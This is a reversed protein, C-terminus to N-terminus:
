YYKRLFGFVYLSYLSIVNFPTFIISSWAQREIVNFCIKFLKLYIKLMRRKINLSWYRVISDLKIQQEQAKIM